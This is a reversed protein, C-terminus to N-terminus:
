TSAVRQRAATSYLGVPDLRDHRLQLGLTWTTPRGALTASWDRSVAGGFVRRHEAQEFQDGAMPNDLFGTFNSYLDLSSAIAYAGLKWTGDDDTRRTDLSLSFRSTRGGDTPDLADFRGLVGADVARQPIQDTANWGATYALATVSTRSADSGFSYRVLGNGRHFKEPHTWPGDNHAGELAYLLEGDGLTSSSAVLARGYGRQGITASTIGAPLSAFQRIHAAGASAFDGEEAFYPGKKYDIRDVLEPILWNLDSYGQGHAHSPMNVPMGDVFTAFDTGHDLNFGRLFYQNAKGDGSHQTVIVGPVFELVEAPRLTPRSEILKSTVSGQSAADSTGVANAYHGQVLVTPLRETGVALAVPAIPETAAEDGAAAAPDALVLACALAAFPM